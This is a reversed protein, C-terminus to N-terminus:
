YKMRLLNFDRGQRGQDFHRTIVDYEAELCAPVLSPQDQSSDRAFSQRLSGDPLFFQPYERQRLCEPASVQLQALAEGYQPPLETVAQAPSEKYRSM